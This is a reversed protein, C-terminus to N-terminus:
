LKVGLEKEIILKTEALIKEAKEQILNSESILMDGKGTLLWNINLGTEAFKALVEGGPIRVNNLYFSLQNQSVETTKSFEKVSDNGYYIYERLREGITGM